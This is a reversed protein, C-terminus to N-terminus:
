CRPLKTKKIKWHRKHDLFGFVVFTYIYIYLYINLFYICICIGLDCKKPNPGCFSLEVRFFFDTRNLAYLDTYHLNWSKKIHKNKRLNYTGFSFYFVSGKRNAQSKLIIQGLIEWRGSVEYLPVTIRAFDHGVQTPVMDEVDVLGM